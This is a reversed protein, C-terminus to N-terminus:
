EARIFEKDPMREQLLQLKSVPLDMTMAVDYIADLLYPESVGDLWAKLQNTRLSLKKRIEADDMVPTEASEIFGMQAATERDELRLQREGEFLRPANSAVFEIEDRSLLTYSASHVVRELGNQLILGVPYKRDNYVKMKDNM